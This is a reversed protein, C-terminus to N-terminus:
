ICFRFICSKDGGKNSCLMMFNCDYGRGGGVFPWFLDVVIHAHAKTDSETQALTVPVSSHVLTHFSTLSNGYGYFASYPDSSEIEQKM